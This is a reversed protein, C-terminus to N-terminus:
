IDDNNDSGTIVLGPLSGDRGQNCALTALLRKKMRTMMLIKTIRTMVLGSSEGRFYIKTFITFRTVRTFRTIRTIRTWFSKYKKKGWPSFYIHPMKQSVKDSPMQVLFLDEGPFYLVYSTLYLVDSTLYLAYSLVNSMFYLLYCSYGKLRIPEVWLKM